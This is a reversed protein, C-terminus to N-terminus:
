NYTKIDDDLRKVLQNKIAQYYERKHSPLTYDALIINLKNLDDDDIVGDNNIDMKSEEISHYNQVVEDIVEDITEIPSEITPEKPLELTPEEVKTPLPFKNKIWNILKMGM